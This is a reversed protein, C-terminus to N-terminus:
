DGAVDRRLFVLVAAILAPAAYLACVWLARLVPEWDVPSRLFGQWANFQTSLLYPQLGGLGPLIGILQVLLSFMLTGVIAAASNRFVTSFLLGISAIALIPVLYFLLSLGVLGLGETASVRTGSLSVISNFGSVLIGAVLAVAGTIAIAAIAYTFTALAKGAFIQHREVSRTFIGKLTDNRDESAVIDGAVLATILPFMWISGFLLLVLPVALGTDHLYRGFAVDEPQGNRAALAVVFIIPVLAAAGLGLYTRKQARLKRLEWRYITLVGPNM